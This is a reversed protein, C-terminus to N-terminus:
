TCVQSRMAELSPAQRVSDGQQFMIQGPRLKTLASLDFSVDVTSTNNDDSVGSLHYLIGGALPGIPTKEAWERSPANLNLVSVSTVPSDRHWQGVIHEVSSTDNYFLVLSDVKRKCVVLYGVVKGESNVGVGTQGVTRPSCATLLVVILSLLVGVAMDSKVLTGM